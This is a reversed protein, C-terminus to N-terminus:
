DGSTAEISAFDHALSDDRGSANLEEESFQRRSFNV